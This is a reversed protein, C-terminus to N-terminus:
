RSLGSIDQTATTVGRRRLVEKRVKETPTKPLSGAFEVYRPQAFRPLHTRAHAAVAAVNLEAGEHPVIVLMVEEEAGVINSPVAFAAIEKVGPLARMAAEVEFSSINEGRRRICDKIRDVFSIIGDEDMIGADGTHFWFNRWAEVTKEPMGNYGAMFGFPVKPRVVIEGVTGAPLPDDNAPDRIEAEFYRSYVYGSTDPKTAGPRGYLPINCETMGFGSFVQVVGFRERWTREHDAPNPAVQIIRLAHGRDRPSPPQAFVFASMAGLLNTATVGYQHLDDVFASASFRPRMVASAGAILVAYLQMLLANAHFFPLAIYHRDASTLSQSDITGLGFLYCHAHPMLVGKSPGTTGSTYMICAIDRAAPMPGTWPAADGIDGPALLRQRDHCAAAVTARYADDVVIVRAECNRLPHELFAGTLATNLPVLTAGLRGAGLWLRVFDLGNPLMAAVRDGPEVGLGALFGAVRAADAAAQGYTLREGETTLLFVEDPRKAAQCALVEPLVWRRHDRLGDYM